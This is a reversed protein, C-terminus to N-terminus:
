SSERCALYSEQLGLDKDMHKAEHRHSIGSQMVVNESSEM